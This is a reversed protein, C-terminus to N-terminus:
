DANAQRRAEHNAPKTAALSFLHQEFSLCPNRAFRDPYSSLATLFTEIEQQVERDSSCIRMTIPRHKRTSMEEGWMGSPQNQM